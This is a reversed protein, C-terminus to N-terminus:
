TDCGLTDPTPDIGPIRNGPPPIHAGGTFLRNLLRIPDSVDLEGSDDTDPADLCDIPASGGRFLFGLLTLADSLDVEGDRNSDGRLFVPAEDLSHNETDYTAAFSRGLELDLHGIVNGRKAIVRSRDRGPSEFMRDRRDFTWIGIREDFSREVHFGQIRLSVVSLRSATVVALEVRGGSLFQGSLIQDDPHLALGDEPTQGLIGGDAVDVMEFTGPTRVWAFAVWRPPRGAGHDVVIIEEGDGALFNGAVVRDEPDIEWPGLNKTQSWALRLQGESERLLGVGRPSRVLLEDIGDGDVDLPLFCDHADLPWEPMEDEEAAIRGDETVSRLLVGGDRGDLELLQSNARLLATGGREGVRRGRALRPLGPTAGVIQQVGAPRAPGGVSWDVVMQRDRWSLLAARDRNAVLLSEQSHGAIWVAELVDSSDFTWEAPLGAPDAPVTSGSWIIESGQFNFDILAARNARHVFLKDGPEEGFPAVAFQDDYSLRWDGIQGDFVKSQHVRLNGDRTATGLSLAQGTFLVVDGMGDGNFDGPIRIIESGVQCSLGCGSHSHMGIGAFGDSLFKGWDDHDRFPADSRDGDIDLDAVIPEPDILGNGNWDINLPYLTDDVQAVDLEALIHANPINDGLGNAELIRTESIDAFLGRSFDIRVDENVWDVGAFQFRHNMVSPYNPKNNRRNWTGRETAGGHGLGFAHGLEHLVAAAFARRTSGRLASAEIHKRYVVGVHVGSPKLGNGRAEEDAFNDSQGALGRGSASAQDAVVLYYFINHRAPHFFDGRYYAGYLSDDGIRDSDCAPRAPFAARYPLVHRSSAGELPDGHFSDFKLEHTEVLDEPLRSEVSPGLDFHVRIDTESREFIEHIQVAAQYAVLVNRWEPGEAPAMCDIEIFVDKFLPHAGFGPLDIFRGARTVGNVEWGDLLGDNDTDPDWPDTQFLLEQDDPIGDRDRDNAKVIQPFAFIVAAACVASALTRLVTKFVLM